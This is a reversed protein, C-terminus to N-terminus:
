TSCDTLPRWNNCSSSEVGRRPQQQQCSLLVIKSAAERRERRLLQQTVRGARCRSLVPAVVCSLLLLLLSLLSFVLSAGSCGVDIALVLSTTTNNNKTNIRNAPHTGCCCAAGVVVIMVDRVSDADVSSCLRECCAKAASSESVVCLMVYMDPLEDTKM